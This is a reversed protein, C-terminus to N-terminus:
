AAKTTSGAADAPGHVPLRLTFTSGEGAESEIGISGGHMEALTKVIHLGLGTGAIGTSTGARFFRNCMKPLDEQSIGVGHDKVQIVVQDGDILAKVQIDPSAPSYKIANSLLNTLMQRVSDADANIADPIDAVDCTIVHSGALDQHSTCVELVLSRIDCPAANISLEGADLRSSSLTTEMLKSMRKVATRIDHCRKTLDEPTLRTARIQIRQATADIIALPTRFEHSALSIFQRQVQNLEVERDLAREAEEAKIRLQETAEDLTKQLNDQYSILERKAIKRQTIEDKLEFLRRVTFASLGLLFILLATVVEDIEWDEHARSFEHVAEFGDVNVSFLYAAAGFLGLLVADMRISTAKDKPRPSREAPRRMFNM